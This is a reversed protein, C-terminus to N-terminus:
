KHSATFMGNRSKSRVHGLADTLKTILGDADHEHKTAHGEPNTM